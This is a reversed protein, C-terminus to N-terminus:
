PFFRQFEQPIQTQAHPATKTVQIEVVSPEVVKHIDRYVDSSDEVSALQQRTANVSQEAFAFQGDQFLHVGLVAAGLISGSLAVAGVSKRWTSM